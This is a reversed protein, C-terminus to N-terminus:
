TKEEHKTQEGELQSSFDLEPAVRSPRRSQRGLTRGQREELWQSLNSRFDTVILVCMVVKETLLKLGQITGM